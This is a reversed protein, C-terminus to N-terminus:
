HERHAHRIHSSCLRTDSGQPADESGCRALYHRRSDTSQHEDKGRKLLHNSRGSSVTGKKPPRILCEPASINRKSERKETIMGIIKLRTGAQSKLADIVSTASKVDIRQRLLRETQRFRDRFYELYDKITGNSSLRTGPNDVVDIDADVDKAYSYFSSKGEPAPPLQPEAREQIRDDLPEVVIEKTPREEEIMQELFNREIFFPREGLENLHKIARSMLKAPDETATMVNLFEFAQKDLQYGAALTLEVAKQLKNTGNSEM